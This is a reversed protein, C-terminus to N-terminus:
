CIFISFNILFMLASLWAVIQFSWCCQNNGHVLEEVDRLLSFFSLFLLVKITLGGLSSLACKVQLLMLQLLLCKLVHWNMFLRDPMVLFKALACSCESQMSMRLNQQQSRLSFYCLSTEQKLLRFSFLAFSQKGSDM